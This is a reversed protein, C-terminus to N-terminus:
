NRIPVLTGSPSREANFFSLESQLEGALSSLNESGEAVKESAAAVEAVSTRINDSARATSNIKVSMKRVSEAIEESSAAQEQAVSALDQTSSAIERLAAIMKSIAEETERSLEKAKNSDETNEQACNVIKDLDSTIESALAAINKAAVNSDEALKRVEEAVVAFGRGADGARAAEIAANLALLNTQDAISGIQTVFNQIQRTRNGLEVVSATSAASSAVVRGIGEVVSRVAKMGADGANMANDTRRAIETGREATTQAGAAVEGVSVNVKDSVSAAEGLNANMEDVNAKFEEVSASTQEAMASFDQSADSIRSGATKIAGIVDRLKDAMRALENEMKAIADGDGANFDATLDGGAFAAIKEKMANIPKTIIRSIFFSMVLTVVAAIVAILVTIKLARESYAETEKQSEDTNDILYGSFDHLTLAYSLAIPEVKDFFLQTAEEDRNADALSLCENQLKALESSASTIQDVFSAAKADLNYDKFDDIIKAMEGNRRAFDAKFSDMKARDDTLLMKLIDKQVAHSHARLVNGNIAPLTNDYYLEIFRRNTEVSGRYNMATVAVLLALPIGALAGLKTGISRKALFSM